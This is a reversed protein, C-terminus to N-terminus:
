FINSIKKTNQVKTYNEQLYNTKYFYKNKLGCQGFISKDAMTSIIHSVIGFAPIILIYSNNWYFSV